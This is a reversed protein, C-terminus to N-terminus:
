LWWNRNFSFMFTGNKQCNSMSSAVLTSLGLHGRFLTMRIKQINQLIFPKIEVFELKNFEFSM